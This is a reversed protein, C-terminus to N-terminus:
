TVSLFTKINEKMSKGHTKNLLAEADGPDDVCHGLNRAIGTDPTFSPDLKGLPYGTIVTSPVMDEAWRDSIANRDDGLNQGERQREWERGIKGTVECKQRLM